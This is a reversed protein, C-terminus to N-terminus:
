SNGDSGGRPHGDPDTAVHAHFDSKSPAAGVPREPIQRMPLPPVPQGLTRHWYHWSRIDFLGAPADALAACLEDRNFRRRIVEADRWLGYVM